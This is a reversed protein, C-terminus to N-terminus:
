VEPGQYTYVNFETTFPSISALQFIIQEEGQDFLGKAIKVPNDDRHFGVQYPEANLKVWGDVVPLCVFAPLTQIPQNYDTMVAYDIWDQVDSDPTILEGGDSIRYSSSWEHSDPESRYVKGHERDIIWEDSWELSFGAQDLYEYIRGSVTSWNLLLVSRESNTYGPEGYHPCTELNRHQFLYNLIVQTRKETIHM